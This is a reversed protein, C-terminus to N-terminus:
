MFPTDYSLEVYDHHPKQKDIPPLQRWNKFIHTLYEDEKEPGKVMINEFSCDTPIGYLEKKMIEKTRYPSMCNAVYLCDDYNREMCISNVRRSWKNINVPILNGIYIALNKWWRRGKRPRCTLMALLMNIRDIRKYNKLAEEMTNGLGDLPFIDIYIGRKVKYKLDEAMSTNTDYFKAMNYPFDEAMDNPSEVIYHDTKKNMLKLLCEYDPRPMAIDFDDDWPIFGKHRAAGLFSGCIVYYRLGHEDLYRTLWTAMELLKEQLQNM